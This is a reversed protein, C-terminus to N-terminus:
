YNVGVQLINLKNYVTPLAVYGFGIQAAGTVHKANVFNILGM